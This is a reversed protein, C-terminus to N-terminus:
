SIKTIRNKPGPAVPSNAEFYAVLADVDIMGQVRDTGETLVAFGDGGGALYNNVTVRYEAAADIPVGGIMISAIDVKSGVSAGASWSYSFGESVQLVKGVEFQRELLADIQAGTLTMTILYNNFPQVAFAEGYTVEGPAEGASIEDYSFDARIGGPNMFAVVAAGKDAAATAELQADAIVDGLASEKAANSNKTINTTISGIVRNIRAAALEEYKDVLAAVDAAPEIDHNTKHNVANVSTVDKTVRNLTLDIETFLNGKSGAGTVTRGDITCTYAAHSHGTLFLDVEDDTREVIDVITGGCKKNGGQHVIAIIAEVNVKEFEPMLANITDAEDLFALGETASATVIGPTGELVVGVFAVRVGQFTKIKYAPFLTEGTEEVIVNAALFPFEAGDYPDGDICGDDPHCGGSQMRLLEDWGEDFEHNGVAAFDVGMLNAAEITPEDHFLASVSPSAGIMDGASIIVTNRTTSELERLHAALYEAGGKNKGGVLAGHFDNFALIQLDVEPSMEAGKGENALATSAMALLLVSVFLAFGTRFHKM